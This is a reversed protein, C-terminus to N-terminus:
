QAMMHAVPFRKKLGRLIMSERVTTKLDLARLTTDVLHSTMHTSGLSDAVYYM